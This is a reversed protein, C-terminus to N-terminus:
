DAPRRARWGSPALLGPRDAGHGHREDRCSDAVGNVLNMMVIITVQTM